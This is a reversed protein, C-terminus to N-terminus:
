KPLKFFHEMMKADGKEIAQLPESQQLLRRKIERKFMSTFKKRCKPVSKKVKRFYTELSDRRFHLIAELDDGDEYYGCHFNKEAFAKSPFDCEGLGMIKFSREM